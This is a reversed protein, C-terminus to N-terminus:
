MHMMIGKLNIDLNLIVKGVLLISERVRERERKGEAVTVHHSSLHNKQFGESFMLYSQAYNM